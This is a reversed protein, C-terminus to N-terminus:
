DTREQVSITKSKEGARRNAGKVDRTDNYVVKLGQNGGRKEITAIRGERYTLPTREVGSAIESSQASLYGEKLENPIRPRKEKSGTTKWWSDFQEAWYKTTDAPM